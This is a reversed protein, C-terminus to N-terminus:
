VWDVGYEHIYFDSMSRVLRMPTSICGTSLRHVSLNPSPSALESNVEVELTDMGHRLHEPM